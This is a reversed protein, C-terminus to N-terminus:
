HNFFRVDQTLPRIDDQLTSVGQKLNSCVAETIEADNNYQGSCPTAHGLANLFLEPWHDKEIPGEFVLDKLADFNWVM